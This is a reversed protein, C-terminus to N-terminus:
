SVRSLPSTPDTLQMRPLYYAFCFLAGVLLLMVENFTVQRGFRYVQLKASYKKTTTNRLPSILKFSDLTQRSHYPSNEAVEADCM